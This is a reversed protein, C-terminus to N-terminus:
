IAALSWSTWTNWSGPSLSSLKPTQSPRLGASRSSCNGPSNSLLNAEGTYAKKTYELAGELDHGSDGPSPFIQAVATKARNSRTAM